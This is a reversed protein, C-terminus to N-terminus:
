FFLWGLVALLKDFLPIAPEFDDDDWTQWGHPSNRLANFEETAAPHQSRTVIYQAYARAFMEDHSTAYNRHESSWTRTRLDQARRTNQLATRLEARADVAPQSRVETHGNFRFEIAEMDIKHGTEHLITNIPAQSADARNVIIQTDIDTPDKLVRSLTSSQKYSGGKHPPQTVGEVPTIGLGGDSHVSAIAEGAARTADAVAGRSPGPIKAAVQMAPDASAPQVPPLAPKEPAATAKPAAAPKALPIEPLRRGDGLGRIHDGLTIDPAIKVKDAKRMMKALAEPGGERGNYREELADYSIRLDKPNWGTWGPEPSVSINELNGYKGDPYKRATLLRNSLELEALQPGEMLTRREAPIDKEAARIRDAEAKTVPVVMCRCMPAWPPFHTDWFPSSAPIIKGGLAAHSARVRDDGFTVYKWYPYATRQRDLTRYWAANRAMGAWHRVLLEARRMAQAPSPFFPALDAAIAKVAKRQDAGAPLAAITAKAREIIAMAEAKRVADDTAQTLKITFTLARIEPLLQQYVSREVAPLGMLFDVAQQDPTAVFATSVSPM